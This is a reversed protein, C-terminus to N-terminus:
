LTILDHVEIHNSGADRMPCLIQVLIATVRVSQDLGLMERPKGRTIERGATQKVASNTDRSQLM